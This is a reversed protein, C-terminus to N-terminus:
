ANKILEFLHQEAPEDVEYLKKMFYMYEDQSMEEASTTSANVVRDHVKKLVKIIEPDYWTGNFQALDDYLASVLYGPKYSRTSLYADASDSVRTLRAHFPIEEKKLNTLYGTGDFNCHHFKATEILIKDADTKELLFSGGHTHKKMEERMAESYRSPYDILFRSMGVKGVDHYLGGLFYKESLNKDFGLERAIAYNFEATRVSFVFSEFSHKMLLSIVDKHSKIKNIYEEEILYELM